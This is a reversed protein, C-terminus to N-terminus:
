YYTIKYEAFSDFGCSKYVNAAVTNSKKVFLVIRKGENKFQRTLNKVLFTAVGRNRFALETFVGGLQICNEGKANISAKGVIKSDKKVVFVNGHQINRRLLIRCHKENFQKKDVVVEELEYAKQIPFIQEFDSDTCSLVECGETFDNKQFAASQAANEAAEKDYRMLNYENAAKPVTGFLALFIKEIEDTYRKEGIISFLRQPRNVSFFEKLTRLVSDDSICHMIQGGESISFVAWLKNKEDIIYYIRTDNKLFHSMLSVCKYEHALLFDFVQQRILSPGEYDILEFVLM